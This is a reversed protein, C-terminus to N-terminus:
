RGLDSVLWKGDIKSLMIHDRGAPKGSDTEGLYVDAKNGNVKSTRIKFTIGVPFTKGSNKLLQLKNAMDGTCLKMAKSYNATTVDKMFDVSVNEPSSSGCASLLAATVASSVLIPRIKM